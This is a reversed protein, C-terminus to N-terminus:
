ERKNGVGKFRWAWFDAQHQGTAGGTPQRMDAHELRQFLLADLDIRNGAGAHTRHDTPQVGGAVFDVLQFLERQADVPLLGQGVCRGALVYREPALLIVPIEQDFLFEAKTVVTAQAQWQAHDLALVQRQQQFAHEGVAAVRSIEVLQRNGEARHRGIDGGALLHHEALAVQGLHDTGAHRDRRYEGRHLQVTPQQHVAAHGIVDRQVHRPLHAHIDGDDDVDAGWQARALLQRRHHVHEVLGDRQHCPAVGFFLELVQVGLIHQDLWREGGIAHGVEAAGLVHDVGAVARSAGEVHAQGM